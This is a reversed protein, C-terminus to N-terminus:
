RSVMHSSANGMLGGVNQTLLCVPVLASQGAIYLLLNNEVICLPLPKESALSLHSLVCTCLSLETGFSCAPVVRCALAM